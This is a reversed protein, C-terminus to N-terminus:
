WEGDLNNLDAACEGTEEGWYRRDVLQDGNMNYDIGCECTNTFNMLYVEEGCRCKGIRDTRYCFEHSQIGADRYGNEGAVCKRYNEMADPNTPKLEGQADCDFSYGAGPCEPDEFFHNYEVGEVFESEQIIEM